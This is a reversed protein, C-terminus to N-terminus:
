RKIPETQCLNAHVKDLLELLMLYEADTLGSVLQSTAADMKDRNLRCLNQGKGTLRVLKVRRDCPSSLGEVLEKQELRSIIGAVTSQAADFLSELEKLPLTHDPARSLILLAHMQAVTLNNEQLNRNAVRELANHIKRVYMGFRPLNKDM